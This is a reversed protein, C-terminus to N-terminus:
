GGNVQNLKPPRNKKVTPAEDAFSTEAASSTEAAPPAESVPIIFLTGERLHRQVGPSEVDAKEVTKSERPGLTISSEALEITIPGYTLNKVIPM